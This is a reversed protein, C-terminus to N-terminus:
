DSYLTELIDFLNKLLDRLMFIMEDLTITNSSDKDYFSFFDNFEELSANTSFPLNFRSIFGTFVSFVEDRRLKSHRNAWNQDNYFEGVKQYLLNKDQLLDIIEKVLKNEM